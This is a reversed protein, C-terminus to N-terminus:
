QEEQLGLADLMFWEDDLDLKALQRRVVLEATLYHIWVESKACM